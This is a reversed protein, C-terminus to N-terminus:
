RAGSREAGHCVGGMADVMRMWGDVREGDWGLLCFLSFVFLPAGDAEVSWVNGRRKRRWDGIADVEVPALVACFGGVIGGRGEAGTM